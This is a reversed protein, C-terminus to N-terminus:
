YGSGHYETQYLITTVWKAIMAIRTKTLFSSELEHKSGVHFSSLTQVGVFRHWILLSLRSVSSVTVLESVNDLPGWTSTQWSDIQVQTHVGQDCVFDPPKMCDCHNLQKKIYSWLSSWQILLLKSIWWLPKIPIRLCINFHSICGRRLGPFDLAIFSCSFVTHVWNNRQKWLFCPLYHHYACM